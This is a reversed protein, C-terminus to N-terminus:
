TFHFNIKSLLEVFVFVLFVILFIEQNNSDFIFLFDGITCTWHMAVTKLIFM